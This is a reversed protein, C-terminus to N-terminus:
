LRRPFSSAWQGLVILAWASNINAPATRGINNLLGEHDSFFRTTSLYELSENLMRHMLEANNMFVSQPMGFGRKPLSTITRPLYQSLIQRLIIKREDGQELYASPMSAAMAMVEPELFPTRVELGHRMSMRDVKTLVAGPLYSYFDLTRWFHLAARESNAFIGRFQNILEGSVDTLGSCLSDVADLGFVPLANNFYSRLAEEPHTHAPNPGISLGYRGYGGFLEDAGDGSLAVTVSKRVERALLLTPLCSRDGNPEDMLAGIDSGLRSLETPSLMFTQHETELHKAIEEALFHESGDDGEFGISFTKPTVGLKKKTLACVLSSDIGSSLFLGLPVDSELRRSISTILLRELAKSKAEFDEQSYTYVPEIELSFYRRLIPSGEADFVLVQGPELKDIGDIISHPPPVYRLALYLGLGLPSIDVSSDSVSAIAHMESAFTLQQRDTQYYLPKEGVRDRFLTTEGTVSDYIAAAFMGDVKELIKWGHLAFGELLVETDTNTRFQAGELELELKLARYNYIEGNFTINYRGSRDTMPQRGAASLDIISLRRHGLTCAGNDSQWMGDM